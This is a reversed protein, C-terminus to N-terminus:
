SDRGLREERDEELEYAPKYSIAGDLGEVRLAPNPHTDDTGGM